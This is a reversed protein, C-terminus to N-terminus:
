EQNLLMILKRNLIMVLTMNPRSRERLDMV